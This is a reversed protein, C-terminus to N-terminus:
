CLLDLIIKLTYHHLQNCNNILEQILFQIRVKVTNEM